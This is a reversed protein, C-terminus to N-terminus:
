LTFYWDCPSQMTKPLVCEPRGIVLLNDLGSQRPGGSGVGAAKERQWADQWYAITSNCLARDFHVDARVQRVGYAAPASLGRDRVQQQERDTIPCDDLGCM